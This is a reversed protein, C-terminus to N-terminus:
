RLHYACGKDVTYSWAQTTILYWWAQKEIKHVWEQMHLSIQASDFMNQFMDVVQKGDNSVPFVRKDAEEKCAIWNAEFRKRVSRPTIKKLSAEFFDWGRTYAEKLDKRRTFWTTLNCRWWGSIIVKAGLSKNKEFLLIQGDRDDRQLLTAAVMMGAAWWWIIAITTHSM